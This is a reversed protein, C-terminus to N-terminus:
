EMPEIPNNPSWGAPKFHLEAAQEPNLRVYVGDAALLEWRKGEEKAFVEVMFLEFPEDKDIHESSHRLHGFLTRGDGVIVTIWTAPRQAPRANEFVRDWVSPHEALSM